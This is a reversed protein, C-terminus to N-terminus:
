AGREVIDTNENGVDHAAELLQYLTERLDDFCHEAQNHSTM